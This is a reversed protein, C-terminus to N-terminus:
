LGMAKLSAEVDEDLGACIDSKGLSEEIVNRYRSWTIKGRGIEDRYSKGDAMGM